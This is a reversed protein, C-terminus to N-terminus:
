RIILEVLTQALESFVPGRSSKQFFNALVSTLFIQEVYMIIRNTSNKLIARPTSDKLVRFTRDYKVILLRFYYHYFNLLIAHVASIAPAM